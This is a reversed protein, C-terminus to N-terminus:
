TPWTSSIAPDREDGDGGREVEGAGAGRARQDAVQGGGLEDGGLLGEEARAHARQHDAEGLLSREVSSCVRRTASSAARTPSCSLEGGVARRWRATPPSSCSM